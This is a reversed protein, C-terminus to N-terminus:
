AAGPQARQAYLALFGITDILGHALIVVWLNRKVILFAAAMALGVAGTLIMGVAGQYAHGVGFLVAQVGVAAAVGGRGKGFLRTLRDILFGRFVIEEGFAATTWSIVLLQALLAPNGPLSEFASLDAQADFAWALAQGVGIFVVVLIAVGAVAGAVATKWLSKPRALGLSGVGRGTLRSSVLAAVASVAVVIPAGAPAGAASMIVLALAPIVFVVALEVWTTRGGADVATNTAAVSM